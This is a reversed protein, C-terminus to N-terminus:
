EGDSGAPKPPIPIPVKTVKRKPDSLDVLYLASDARKFEEAAVALYTSAVAATRGDHSVAGQFYLAAEDDMDSDLTLLPTKRVDTGALPIEMFGFETGNSSTEQAYTTWLVKGNATLGGMSFRPPKPKFDLVRTTPPQGQRLVVLRRVNGDEEMFALTRGRRDYAIFSFDAVQNTFTMLPTRAFTDPAIRGFVTQEGHTDLNEAYFAGEGSPDAFLSISNTFEKTTAIGTKLDLLVVEEETRNLLVRNGAM